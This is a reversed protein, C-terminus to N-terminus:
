RPYIGKDLTAEYLAAIPEERVNFQGVAMAANGGSGLDGGV